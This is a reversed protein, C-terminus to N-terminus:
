TEHAPTDPDALARDILWKLERLTHEDFGIHVQTGDPLRGILGLCKSGPFMSTMVEELTGQIRPPTITIQM